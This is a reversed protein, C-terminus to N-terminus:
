ASAGDQEADASVPLVKMTWDGKQVFDKFEVATDFVIQKWVEPDKAAKAAVPHNTSVMMHGVFDVARGLSFQREISEQRNGDERFAPAQTAPATTETGEKAYAWSKLDNYGREGKEYEIELLKGQTNAIEADNFRNFVMGNDLTIRSYASGRGGQAKKIEVSMVKSVIRSM